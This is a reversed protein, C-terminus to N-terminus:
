SKPALEKQEGTHSDTHSKQQFCQRALKKKPLEPADGLWKRVANDSVGYKNGTGRYGLSKIDERLQEISPHPVKRKWLQRHTNRPASLDMEMTDPGYVDELTKVAEKESNGVSHIYRETTSRNQHGLIKQITGIPVGQSDMLSAALHRIPHFRFYGVGAKKCLSAMIGKRDSYPGSREKGAADWYTHWFVWPVGKPSNQRRAQLIGHLSRVMSIERPRRDGNKTKCTWLTLVQKEFDVDDWVIQNVEGVRAGTLALVWLYDQTDPDAVSIVKLLDERTPLMKKKKRGKDPFFDIGVTPNERILKKGIGFNFVARLYRLERNATFISVRDKEQLLFRDIDMPSIESCSHSKWREVWKRASCISTKYHSESKSSELKDLWLNVLDSFGMVTPTGLQGEVMLQQPEAQPNEVEEKRKAEVKKADTKTKFWAETYRKGKLTFDYRWGKGPKFYLSM